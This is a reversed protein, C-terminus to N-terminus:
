KKTATIIMRSSKKLLYSITTPIISFLAILILHPLKIKNKYKIKFYNIFENLTFEDKIKVEFDEKEFLIRLSQKSFINIHRPADFVYTNDKILNLFLFNASPTKIYITGKKILLRKLKRVVKIPNYFHEIVHSMIILDFKETFKIESFNGLKTKIGLNKLQALSKKNFDTATVYHGKKIFYKSYIGEGSGIELIKIKKRDFNKLLSKAQYNILIKRLKNLSMQKYAGYNKPYAKSIQKENLPNGLCLHNCNLCKNFFFSRKIYNYPDKIESYKGIKINRKKCIPCVEKKM